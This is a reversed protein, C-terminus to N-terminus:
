YKVYKCTHINPWETDEISSNIDYIAHPLKFKTKLSAWCQAVSLHMYIEIYLFMLIFILLELAADDRYLRTGWAHMSFYNLLPRQQWLFWNVIWNFFQSFCCYITDILKANNNHRQKQMIVIEKANCKAELFRFCALFIYYLPPNRTM